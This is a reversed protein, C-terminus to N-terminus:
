DRRRGTGMLLGLIMGFGLAILLTLWINERAKTEVPALKTSVRKAEESAFSELRRVASMLDDIQASMMARASRDPAKVAPKDAATELEAGNTKEVEIQPAVKESTAEVNASGKRCGDRRRLCQKLLHPDTDVEL